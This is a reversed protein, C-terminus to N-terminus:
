QPAGRLTSFIGPPPNVAPDGFIGLSDSFIRFAGLIKESPRHPRPPTLTGKVRQFAVPLGHPASFPMISTIPLAYSHIIVTICLNTYSGCSGKQPGISSFGICSYGQGGLVGHRARQASVPAHITYYDQGMKFKDRKRPRGRCRGGWKQRYQTSFTKNCTYYFTIAVTFAKIYLLKLLM